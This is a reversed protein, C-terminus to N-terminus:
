CIKDMLGFAKAAIVPNYYETWEVIKGHENFSLIALYDNAYTGRGNKLKLNGTFKVAVKNSDEFPLIEDIPFAIEDFNAAATKIGEYIESRGVTEAPFLESHYPHTWKGDETFLESFEELRRQELFGLLNRAIKINEERSM